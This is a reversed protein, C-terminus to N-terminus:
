GPEAGRTMPLSEDRVWESMSGDYVAVAEKGVLLCALADITASIGGGCYAIVRDAELLGKSSLAAELEAAPRFRGADLLEDYYVNVSGSIHGKRGYSMKGEGTYVDPSLANVTCVADDGIAALVQAQDVFREPRPRAIVDGPSFVTPEATVAHGAEQWAAFGGNLVSVNDLGAYHLLWWARTAWMMHGTSYVVIRDGEGIGVGRLGAQLADPAPLSFGLGTTTDSVARIQDLFAAGPVHGQEYDALGSEARYGKEAPVLHVTADFVKLNPDDLAAALADAEILYEPKAYSM